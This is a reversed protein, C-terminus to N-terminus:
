DIYNKNDHCCKRHDEKILDAAKEAIMITPANTNTSILQPMISADVVRLRELSHVKLRQDVVSDSSNSGMRCTGAPHYSTGSYNEIICRYFPDSPAPIHSCVKYYSVYLKPNFKQLAETQFLDYAVNLGEMAIELDEKEEFYNSDINPHQFPDSSRLTITGRSLPLSNSVMAVVNPISDEVEGYVGVVFSNFTIEVNSYSANPLQKTNICAVAEILTVSALPGSDNIAYEEISQNSLVMEETPVIGPTITFQLGTNVHDQLYRGVPLDAVVPINLSELHDKPGVGSLMLLQPSNVTGASVIIEKSAWAVATQGKSSFEVGVARNGEFIIRTVLAHNLMVLNKRALVPKIYARNTSYRSGNACNTQTRMFGVNNRGNLDAVRFGKERGAQLYADRLATYYPVTTIPLPGQTGHYAPERDVVRNNESKKFYPLVEQYSWGDNGQAAWNDYDRPNGHLIILSNISSSGGNLRGRPWSCNGKRIPDRCGFQETTTYNWDLESGWLKYALFPTQSEITEGGGAEILLVKWDEIETLRRAIVCGASGAGVIIFDYTENLVINQTDKLELEPNFDNYRYYLVVATLIAVFTQYDM